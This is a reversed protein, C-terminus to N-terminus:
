EGSNKLLIAGAQHSYFGMTALGWEVQRRKMEKMLSLVMRASTAGPVDGFALAGGNVNCQSLAVEGLPTDRGEFTAFGKLCALAQAPFSEGIEWLHIDRAQLGAKKLVKETAYLPGLVPKKVEKYFGGGRDQGAEGSHAFAYISVLPTYGLAKAKARSMLLFFVAGDAWLAQRRSRTIEETDKDESGPTTFIPQILAGDKEKLEFDFPPFIPIIEEKGKNQSIKNSFAHKGDPGSSPFVEKTVSIEPGTQDEKNARRAKQFSHSVFKEQDARSISFDAFFSDWDPERVGRCFPAKLPGQWEIDKPRLSLVLQAKEKWGRAYFIDQVKNSRFLFPRQSVNEVGGAIVIDQVNQRIKMTALILSELSSLDSKKVTWSSVEHSLGAMQAISRALHLDAGESNGVILEEIDEKQISAKEILEKITSAGLEDERINKFDQNSLMFPSRVGAVIVAERNAKDSEM